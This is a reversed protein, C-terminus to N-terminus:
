TLVTMAAAGGSVKAQIPLTRSHGCPLVEERSGHWRQQRRLRAAERCRANCADLTPLKFVVPAWAFAHKSGRLEAQEKDIRAHLIHAGTALANELAIICECHTGEMLIGRLRLALLSAEEGNLRLANTVIPVWDTSPAPPYRETACCVTHVMFASKATAVARICDDSARACASGKFWVATTRHSLAGPFNHRYRKHRSTLQYEWAELCLQPPPTAARSNNKACVQFFCRM